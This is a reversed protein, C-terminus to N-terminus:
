ATVIKPTKPYGYETFWKDLRLLRNELSALESRAQRQEFGSLNPIISNLRDIEEPLSQLIKQGNRIFKKGTIEDIIARFM